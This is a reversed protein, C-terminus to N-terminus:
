KTTNSQNCDYKWLDLVTLSGGDVSAVYATAGDSSVALGLAGDLNIDDEIIGLFTPNTPQKFSVMTLSNSNLSSIYGVTGNHSLTLISSGDLRAKADSFRGVLTPTGFPDTAIDLVVLTESGRGLVYLFLGDPSTVACRPYDLLADGTYLAAVNPAAPDTVNVVVVSDYSTGTVYVKKGDRSVTVGYAAALHANGDERYSMYALKVPLGPNEVSVVSLGSDGSSWATVYVLKGDPSLALEISGHVSASGYLIPATPDRVDFVKLAGNYQYSCVYVFKGDHSLVIGYPSYVYASAVIVPATPDSVDVVALLNASSCTVFAFNGDASLVVYRAADMNTSNGVRGLLHPSPIATCNDTEVNDGQLGLTGLEREVSDMWTSVSRNGIVVDNTFSGVGDVFLQVDTTRCTTTPSAAELDRSTSHPIAQKEDMKRQERLDAVQAKLQRNEKQISTVTHQLDTVTAQLSQLTAHLVDVTQSDAWVAAFLGAICILSAYVTRVAFFAM